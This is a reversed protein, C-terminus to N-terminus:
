WLIVFKLFYPKRPITTVKVSNKQIQMAKYSSEDREAPVESAQWKENLQLRLALLIFM